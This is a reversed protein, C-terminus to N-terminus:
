GLYNPRPSNMVASLGGEDDDPEGADGADGYAELMANSMRQSKVVFIEDPEKPQSVVFIEAVIMKYAMGKRLMRLQEALAADRELQALRERSIEVTKKKMAVM